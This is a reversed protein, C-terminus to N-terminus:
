QKDDRVRSSDWESHIMELVTWSVSQIDDKANSDWEHELVALVLQYM